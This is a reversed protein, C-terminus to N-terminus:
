QSTRMSADVYQSNEPTGDSSAGPDVDGPVPIDNGPAPTDVVAATDNALAPDDDGPLLQLILSMQLTKALPQLMRVLFQLAM